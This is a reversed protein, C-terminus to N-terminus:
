VEWTTILVFFPFLAFGGALAIAVLVSGARIAPMYKPHNAGFTQFASWFGHRVHMFLIAMAATYFMIYAPSNFVGAVIESITTGTKDAFTFNVLHTIVFSLIVLGTYPMLSASLTKNGASKNVAYRQPRAKINQLFLITGTGIHVMAFFVLGLEALNLVFGLSHLKHAYSDFAQPGGFMTLNGVLHVSLFGLFSLGTVAMMQKKGISSILFRYAWSM